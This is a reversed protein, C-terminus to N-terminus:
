FVIRVEALEQMYRDYNYLCMCMLLLYKKFLSSADTLLICPEESLGLNGSMIAYALLIKSFPGQYLQRRHPKALAQCICFHISVTM